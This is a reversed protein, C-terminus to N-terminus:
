SSDSELILVRSFAHLATDLSVSLHGHHIIRLLFTFKMLVSCFQAEQTTCTTFFGGALAPSVLSAPKIGPDPLHGPLTCPLGSWHEQM